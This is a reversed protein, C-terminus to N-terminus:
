AAVAKEKEDLAALVEVEAKMSRSLQILLGRLQDLDWRYSAVRDTAEFLPLTLRDRLHQYRSLAALESSAGGLATSLANALLEADRLADTMGHASIPDKFHSADGVLAWGDGWPQRLFGAVGRFARLRGEFRGDRVEEVAEPAAEALLRHFAQELDWRLSKM